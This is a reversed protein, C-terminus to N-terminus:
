QFMQIGPNDEMTEDDRCLLDDDDDIGINALDTTLAVESTL